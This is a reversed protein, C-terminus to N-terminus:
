YPKLVCGGSPPQTRTLIMEATRLITEVCLRRFAAPRRFNAALYNRITEVCLRRFAAPQNKRLFRKVSFTEVCLRRFAAPGRWRWTDARGCTEVCLRRFAAPDFWLTRSNLHFHKLVCGGSPPQNQWQLCLCSPLPKLVCGGSPPQTMAKKNYPEKVQKLM